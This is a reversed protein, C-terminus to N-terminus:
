LPVIRGADDVAFIGSRDITVFLTRLRDDIDRIRVEHTGQSLWVPLESLRGTVRIMDAAGHDARVHLSGGDVFSMRDAALWGSEEQITVRFRVMAIHRRMRLVVEHVTDSPDDNEVSWSMEPLAARVHASNSTWQYTGVPLRVGDQIRRLSVTPVWPPATAQLRVPLTPTSLDQGDPDVVKVQTLRGRAKGGHNTDLMLPMMGRHYIRYPVEARGWVGAVLYAVEAVDTERVDTDPAIVSVICGPHLSRLRATMRATSFQAAGMPTMNRSIMDTSLRASHADVPVTPMALAVLPAAMIITGSTPLSEGVNAEKLVHDESEVELRFRGRPMGVLEIRGDSGTRGRRVWTEKPDGAKRPGCSVRVDGVPRGATDLVELRLNSGQSLVVSRTEGHRLDAPVKGPLYEAHRIAKGRAAMPDAVVLVGDDRSALHRPEPDTEGSAPSEGTWDIWAGAVPSGHEDVLELLTDARQEASRVEVPVDNESRGPISVPEAFEATAEAAADPSPRQTNWPVLTTCVILFALAAVGLVVKARDPDM